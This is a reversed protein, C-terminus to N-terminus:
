TDVVFTASAGSLEVPHLPPARKQPVSVIEFGIRRAKRAIAFSLAPFSRALPQVVAVTFSSVSESAM